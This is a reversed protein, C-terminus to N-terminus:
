ILFNLLERLADPENFALYDTTLIRGKVNRRSLEKLSDKLIILGSKTVFAVSFWFSDCDLLKNELEGLVTSGKSIDNFLLKPRFLDSSEHSKDILGTSVANQIESALNIM